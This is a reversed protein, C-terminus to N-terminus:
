GYRTFFFEIENKNYYNAIRNELLFNNKKLIQSFEEVKKEPMTLSVNEGKLIDLSMEMLHSGLGNNRYKDSTFLTCIKNENRTHKLISFAAVNNKYLIYIFSRWGLYLEVNVKSYWSLFNPYQMCLDSLFPNILDYYRNVQTLNGNKVNCVLPTFPSKAGSSESFLKKFREQELIM